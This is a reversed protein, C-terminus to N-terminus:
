PLLSLLERGTINEAGAGNFGAILKTYFGTIGPYRREEFYSNHWLLTFIGGFRKIEAILAAVSEASLNFDLGRYDFLTCDMLTLPFEWVDIAADNEFDYLKFPYCFSNRFGEHGAFGLTTDYSYDLDKLLKMTSTMEFLLTHNRNGALPLKCVNQLKNKIRVAEDKSTVAEITSHMGIECGEDELWAILTRIKESELRFNRQDPLRDLFYFVSKFGNKREVERLFDFTWHPDRSKFFGTFADILSALRYGFSTKEKVLGLLAKSCYLFNNINYLKVRDVDHTILFGITEFLRRKKLPLHYLKCFAQLGNYITEFYYNVLPIQTIGLRHQVSKLYDYRGLKDKSNGAYEQFGSLLYFSSKLYDHNFILNGGSIEWAADSGALPFLVQQGDINIVDSISFASGSLLFIVYGTYRAIEKSDKCFVFKERLGANIEATLGLHFLVYDVQNASLFGKMRSYHNTQRRNEGRM